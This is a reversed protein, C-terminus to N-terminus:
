PRGKGSAAVGDDYLDLARAVGPGATIPPYDAEGLSRGM